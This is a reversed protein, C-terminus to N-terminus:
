AALRGKRIYTLPERAAALAAPILGAVFCLAFALGFGIGLTGWPMVLPPTLGGFYFFYTCINIGCWALMVGAVLSLAGAAAFLMLSEGIILRFLQSRTMGVGRLVGIQWFRARVSAMVANFVALSTIGLAILPFWTISWIIDNARRFLQQTLDGRETIKVYQAGVATQGAVPLNVSVGAYRDAVPKFRAEMEKFPVKEDANLWFFRTRDLHYDARAGAYDVFLMTLVIPAAGSRVRVDSIKTYWHWGPVSVVGAITYEVTKEPAAPAGRPGRGPGAGDGGRRMGRPGGAGPGRPPRSTLEVAFRDGVDLGTQVHFSDPVLCYRESTSALKRAAEERDGKVFKLPMVPHEGGFARAPDVGLVVVQRQRPSVNRFPKTQMMARTIQPQEVAMPLFEGPIVGPTNRVEDIADQPVGAPLIAVLMRPLTADPTFPVLMSYGWVQITVFLSLGTALAITTGAARRLNGSLQQRLFRRDIRLVWALVPGFLGEALRVVLPTIMAFGVIMAVCGLLPPKFGGRGYTHSLLARVSEYRALYVIVPNIAILVLGVSVLVWPFRRRGSQESSSLVDIPKLRAAQWAPLAAAALAGALACLGSGVVAAFGLPSDAFAASRFMSLREGLVNGVSLFARALLLGLGWGLAAFLLAEFVVMAALQMRSLAVARLIAFQRLRERAGSSLAAFIIFTAAVFALMGANMEQVRVMGVLMATEDGTERLSFVDIPPDVEAAADSWKDVFAGAASRDKLVINVVNPRGSNGNIRAATARSVSIDGVGGSQAKLVGVVKLAVESGNGGVTLEDGSKLKCRGQFMSSIVAEAASNDASLWRGEGLESPAAQAATGLLMGGSFPGRAEVEPKVIRVRSRVSEDIEAVAPDKRIQELFKAEIEGGSGPMAGSSSVSVDFRGRSRADQDSRMIAADYGRIVWVVLCVSVAVGLLGLVARGWNKVNEALVLKALTRIAKM